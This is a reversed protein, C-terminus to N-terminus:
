SRLTSCGDSTTTRTRAATQRGRVPRLGRPREPVQRRRRADHRPRQGSGPLRGRGRVPRRRGERQPLRHRARERAQPRQQGWTRRTPTRKLEAADLVLDGDNDKDPLRRRGRLQRLGGPRGPVQRGQRRLRRRRPGEDSRRHDGAEPGQLPGPRDEQARAGHLDRGERRAGQRPLVRGHRARGPSASTRRPSRRRRRRAASPRRVMPSRGQLTKEYGDGQRAADARRVGGDVGRRRRPALRQTRLNV